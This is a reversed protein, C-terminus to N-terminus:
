NLILLCNRSLSYLSKIVRLYLYLVSGRSQKHKTTKNSVQHLHTLILFHLPSLNSSASDSKLPTSCLSALQIDRCAGEEHELPSTCCFQRTLIDRRASLTRFHTVNQPFSLQLPVHLLHSDSGGWTSKSNLKPAPVEAELNSCRTELHASSNWELDETTCRTVKLLLLRGGNRKIYCTRSFVDDDHM